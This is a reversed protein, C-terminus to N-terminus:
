SRWINNQIWTRIHSGIDILYVRLDKICYALIAFGQFIILNKFSNDWFEAFIKKSNQLFDHFNEVSAQIIM